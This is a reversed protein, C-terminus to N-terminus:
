SISLLFSLITISKFLTSHIFLEPSPINFPATYAETYQMNPDNPDEWNIQDYNGFVLLKWAFLNGQFIISKGTLGGLVQKYGKVSILGSIEDLQLAIQRVAEMIITKPALQGWSELVFVFSDERKEIEVLKSIEFIYM